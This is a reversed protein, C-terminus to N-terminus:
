KKIVSEHLGPKAVSTINNVTLDKKPKIRWLNNHIKIHELPVNAITKDKRFIVTGYDYGNTTRIVELLAAEKAELPPEQALAAAVQCPYVLCFLQNM